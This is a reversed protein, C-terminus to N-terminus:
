GYRYQKFGLNQIFDAVLEKDWNMCTPVGYKDFAPVLWSEVNAM